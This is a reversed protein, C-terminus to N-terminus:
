SCREALKLALLVIAYYALGAFLGAILIIRFDLWFDYWPSELRRRLKKMEKSDRITDTTEQLAKVADRFARERQRDYGADEELRGDDRDFAM